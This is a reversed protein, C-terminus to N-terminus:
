KIYKSKVAKVAIREYRGRGAQGVKRDKLTEEEDYIVAYLAFLIYLYKLTQLSDVWKLNILYCVAGILVARIIGSKEKFCKKLINIVFYMIFVVYAILGTYSYRIYEAIYFDDVSKIFSGNIEASFARKRGIGLVPNLWDLTFIYKLQERYNSSSDLAQKSAGYAVAFDTDFVEDVLSTIQLLIYQAIGTSHFVVLFVALAVVFVFLFLICKKKNIKSSFMFLLIIEIIFVALTSRSGTLFINMAFLGFLIPRKLVNIERNEMDICVIPAISILLLGYGLSHNCPGMIRYNGSRVFAGTYIGGITELYSFPSRGLVYEIVGSITLIYCFIIIYKIAKEIGIIDKIIYICLYFGVLELLPNLLANIDARLVMTYLLVILYPILVYSYRKNMIINVLSKKKESDAIVMLLVAIIMIRLLTFDFMPFPVGFYQPIVFLAVLFIVCVEYFIKEERSPRVYKSTVDKKM